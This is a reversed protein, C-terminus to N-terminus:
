EIPTFEIRLRKGHAQWQQAHPYRERVLSELEERLESARAGWYVAVLERPNFRIDEVDQEPFRGLGSVIRLEKEDRWRTSKFFMLREALSPDLETNGALFDAWGEDSLLVPARDAYQIHRALRYVSDCGAANAFELVVGKNDEAYLGWMAADDNASSLCLVKIRRLREVVDNGFRDLIMPLEALSAEIVPRMNRQFARKGMVLSPTRCCELLWGMKNAPPRQGPSVVREWMLELAREVIVEADFDISFPEAMDFLDNFRSPRSWRLTGNTITPRAGNASLYKFYRDM